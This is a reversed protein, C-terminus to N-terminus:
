SAYRDTPSQRPTIGQPQQSLNKAQHNNPQRTTQHKHQDPRKTNKQKSPTKNTHQNRAHTHTTYTHEITYTVTHTTTTHPQPHTHDHSDANTRGATPAHKLPSNHHAHNRTTHHSTHSNTQKAQTRAHRGISARITSPYQRSSAGRNIHRAHRRTHRLVLQHTRAEPIGGNRTVTSSGREKNLLIPGHGVHLGGRCTRTRRHLTRVRSRRTRNHILRHTNSSRRTTARNHARHIRTHTVVVVTLHQDGTSHKRGHPDKNRRQHHTTRIPPTNPPSTKHPQAGM